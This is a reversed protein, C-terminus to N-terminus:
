RFYLEINGFSCDVELPVGGGNGVGEISKSFMDTEKLSVKYEGNLDIDGYSVDAEFNCGTGGTSIDINGYECAVKLGKCNKSIGRIDINGFDDEIDSEGLVNQLKINGYDVKLDGGGWSGIKVNGFSMRVNNSSNKVEGAELNGYDMDVDLKGLIPNYVTMNGFSMSGEITAGKPLKVEVNITVSESGKWGGKPDINLNVAAMGESIRVSQYVEEARKESKLNADIKVIIEMTNKDWTELRINSFELGINFSVNSNVAFSKKIEKYYDESASCVSTFLFLIVALAANFWSTKMAM